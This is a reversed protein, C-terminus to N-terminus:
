NSSVHSICSVLGDHVSLCNDVKSFIAAADVKTPDLAFSVGGTFHVLAINARGLEVNEYRGGKLRYLFLRGFNTPSPQMSGGKVRRSSWLQRRSCHENPLFEWDMCCRLGNLQKQVAFGGCVHLRKVSQCVGLDDIAIPRMLEPGTYHFYWFLEWPLHDLDFHWINGTSELM